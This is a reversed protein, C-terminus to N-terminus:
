QVGLTTEICRAIDYYQSCERSGRVKSRLVAFRVAAVHSSRRSPPNRTFYSPSSARVEVISLSHVDRLLSNSSLCPCYWECVDLRSSIVTSADEDEAAYRLRSRCSLSPMRSRNSREFLYYATKENAGSARLSGVVPPVNATAISMQESAGAVLLLVSCRGGKIAEVHINNNISEEGNSEYIVKIMVTHPM